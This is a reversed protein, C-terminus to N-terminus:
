NSSEPKAAAQAKLAAAYMKTQYDLVATTGDAERHFVASIVSLHPQLIWSFQAGLNSPEDMLQVYEIYHQKWEEVSDAVNVTLEATDLDGLTQVAKYKGKLEQYITNYMDQRGFSSHVTKFFRIRVITGSGDLTVETRDFDGHRDVVRDITWPGERHTELVQFKPDLRGEPTLGFVNNDAITYKGVAAAALAPYDRVPPSFQTTQCSCLLVLLVAPVIRKM